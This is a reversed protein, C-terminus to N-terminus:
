QKGSIQDSLDVLAAALRLDTEDTSTKLFAALTNLKATLKAAGQGKGFAVHFKDGKVQGEEPVPKAEQYMNWSKLFEGTTVCRRVSSAYTNSKDRAAKIRADHAALLKDREAVVTNRERDTKASQIRAEAEKIDTEAKARLTASYEWEVVQAKVSDIMAAVKKHDPTLKAAHLRQALTGLKDRYDALAQSFLKRQEGANLKAADAKNAFSTVKAGDKLADTIAAFLVTQPFVEITQAM